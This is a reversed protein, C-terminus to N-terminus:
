TETPLDPMVSRMGRALPAMFIIGGHPSDMEGAFYIYEFLEDAIEADVCIELVEKEQQEGIGRSRIHSFRGVGRGRHFNAAHIGKEEVLAQQIQTARGKPLICTILKASEHIGEV